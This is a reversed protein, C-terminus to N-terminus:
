SVRNGGKRRSRSANHRSHRFELSQRSVLAFSFIYINIFIKDGRTPIWLYDIKWDCKTGSRWPQGRSAVFHFINFIENERIPISGAVTVSYQRVSTGRGVAANIRVIILELDSKLWDDLVDVLLEFPEQAVFTAKISAVYNVIANVTTKIENWRKSM